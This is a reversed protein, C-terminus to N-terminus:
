WKPYLIVAMVETQIVHLAAKYQDFEQWNVGAYPSIIKFASLNIAPPVVVDEDENNLNQNNECATMNIAMFILALITIVIISNYFYNKKM